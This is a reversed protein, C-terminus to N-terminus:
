FHINFTVNCGSFACMEKVKQQQDAMDPQIQWLPVQEPPQMDEMAAQETTKLSEPYTAKPNSLDSM